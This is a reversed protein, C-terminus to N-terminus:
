MGSLLFVYLMNENTYVKNFHRHHDYHFHHNACEVNRFAEIHAAFVVSILMM